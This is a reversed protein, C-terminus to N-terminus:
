PARRVEGRLRRGLVAMVLLGLFGFVAVGNGNSRAWPEVALGIGILALFSERVVFVWRARPPLPWAIRAVVVAMGVILVGAGVNV